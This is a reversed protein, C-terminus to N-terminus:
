CVELWASPTDQSAIHFRELDGDFIRRVSERVLAPSNNSESLHLALVWQLERHELGGLLEAAQANSLHGHQSGIRRKIHEPYRGGQLSDADHNFEVAVAACGALHERVHPTVHGTDSLVALRGRGGRFSFQCPERADHPVPFPQIELDGIQLTRHCNFTTLKVLARAAASGATGATMWVPIAYRRALSRVGQVHDGHEHTVLVASLDAPHRGLLAMREEVAKRTLGCDIMVLTQRYEVLLANGRSGSGLSALKLTM